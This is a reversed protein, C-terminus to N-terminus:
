NYFKNLLKRWVAIDNVARNSEHKIRVHFVTPDTDLADLRPWDRELTIDIRPASIIPIKLLALLEGM